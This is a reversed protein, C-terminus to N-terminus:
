APRARERWLERLEAPVIVRLGLLAALYVPPGVLLGVVLGAHAALAVAATMLAAALVARLVRGLAPRFSLARMVGVLALGNVALETVVTAWASGYAGFSPILLLNLGVNAVVGVAAYAAFRWQLGVIPVLYGALYGFSIFVFALMLVPLLGASRDFGEGLLNAVLPDALAISGGLVALSIVVLSETGVQVLRRVRDPDRGYAA